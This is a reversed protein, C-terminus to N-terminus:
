EWVVRGRFQERHRGATTSCRTSHLMVLAVAVRTIRRYNKCCTEAETDSSANPWTACRTILRRAEAFGVSQGGDTRRERFIGIRMEEGLERLMPYERLQRYGRDTGTAILPRSAGLSQALRNGLWEVRQPQPPSCPRDERPDPVRM